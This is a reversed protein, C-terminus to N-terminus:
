SGPKFVMDAVVLFLIVADIRAVLLLQDIQDRVELSNAGQEEIMAKIKILKRSLYGIGIAITSLIGGLGIQIWLPRFGWADWAMGAGFILVLVSLPPYIYKGFFEVRGVVAALEEPNDERQVLHALFEFGVSSGLWIIVAAVHFFKLVHYLDFV